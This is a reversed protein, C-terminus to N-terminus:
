LRGFGFGFGGFPFRVDPDRRPDPGNLMQRVVGAQDFHVHMISDWVENEKYPYSWVELDRLPLYSTDSPTGITKLVTDKTAEGVRITGFKQVTLVQEFSVVRGNELRAMYTRQGWPGTMYELLDVNGDKYRNTPQGRKQIVDAESDGVSVSQPLVTACGSLLVLLTLLFARVTTIM